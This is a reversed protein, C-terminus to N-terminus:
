RPSNTPNTQCSKILFEYRGRAFASDVVGKDVSADYAVELKAYVGGQSDHMCALHNVSCAVIVGCPCFVFINSVYHDNHGVM